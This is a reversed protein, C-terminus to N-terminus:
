RLEFAPAGASRSFLTAKKVMYNFLFVVAAAVFKAYLYSVEAHSVLAYMIAASLCLGVLVTMTFLPFGVSVARYRRYDFVWLVNLLYSVGLGTMFGVLNAYLYHFGFYETCVYLM